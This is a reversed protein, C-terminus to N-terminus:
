GYATREQFPLKLPNRPRAVPANGILSRRKHRQVIFTVNRDLPKGCPWSTRICLSLAAWFPYSFQRYHHGTQFPPQLGFQSTLNLEVTERAATVGSVGRVILDHRHANDRRAGNFFGIPGNRDRTALTCRKQRAAASRRLGSLRDPFRQDDIARFIERANQIEVDLAGAARDLGTDHEVIEIALELRM